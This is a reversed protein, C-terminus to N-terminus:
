LVWSTRLRTRGRNAGESYIVRRMWEINYLKLPCVVLLGGMAVCQGGCGVRVIGRGV